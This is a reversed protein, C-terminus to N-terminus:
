IPPNGRNSAADGAPRRFFDPATEDQEPERGWPPISEQLLAYYARGVCSRWLPEGSGAALDRAVDLFSRGDM